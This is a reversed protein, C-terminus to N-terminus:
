RMKLGGIQKALLTNFLALKDTLFTIKAQYLDLFMNYFM